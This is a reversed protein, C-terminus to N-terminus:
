KNARHYQAQLYGKRPRFLIQLISIGIDSPQQSPETPHHPSTVQTTYPLCLTRQYSAFAQLPAPLSTNPSLSLLPCDGWCARHLVILLKMGHCGSAM